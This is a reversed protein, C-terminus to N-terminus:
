SVGSCDERVASVCDVMTMRHVHIEIKAHAGLFLCVGM